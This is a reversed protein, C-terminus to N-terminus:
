HHDLKQAAHQAASGHADLHAADADFALGRAGALREHGDIGATEHGRSLEVAADFPQHIRHFGGRGGGTVVLHHHRAIRFPAGFGLAALAPNWQPLPCPIAQHFGSRPQADPRGWFRCPAIGDSLSILDLPSRKFCKNRIAVAAPSINAAPFIFAASGSVPAAAAYQVSLPPVTISRMGIKPVLPGGDLQSTSVPGRWNQWNVEGLSPERM